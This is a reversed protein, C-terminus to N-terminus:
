KIAWLTETQFVPVNQLCKATPEQTPKILGIKTQKAQTKTQKNKHTKKKRANVVIELSMKHKGHGLRLKM